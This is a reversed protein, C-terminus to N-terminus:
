DDRWAPDSDWDDNRAAVRELAAAAQAETTYPGLRDAGTADPEAEVRRHVLCWWWQVDAM